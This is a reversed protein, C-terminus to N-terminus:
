ENNCVKTRIFDYRSDPVIYKWEPKYDWSSLMNGDTDYQLSYLSKNTHKECDIKFLTVVNSLKDWGKTSLGLKRRMQIFEDREKGSYIWKDWVSVIYNGESKEINGKKYSWVNGEKDRDYEWDEKKDLKKNPLYEYTKFLLVEGTDVKLVKTVKSKEYIMKLVIVDLNLIKGLKLTESETIGSSSLKQEELIKTLHRRDIVKYKEKNNGTKIFFDEEEKNELQEKKSVDINTIKTEIILGVNIKDNKKILVKDIDEWQIDTMLTLYIKYEDIEPEECNGSHLYSDIVGPYLTVKVKDCIKRGKETHSVIVVKELHKSIVDNICQNTFYYGVKNKIIKDLVNGISYRRVKNRMKDLEKKNKLDGRYVDCYEGEVTKLESFCISPFSIIIIILSIWLIKFRM